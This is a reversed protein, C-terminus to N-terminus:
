VFYKLAGYIVIYLCNLGCVRVCLFWLTEIAIHGRYGMHLTQIMTLARIFKVSTPITSILCSHTM